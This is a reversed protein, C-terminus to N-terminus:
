DRVEIPTGVTLGLAVAADGQNVAIEALGNSNEYWMPEGPTVDAFTRARRLEHTTIALRTKEGISAARLGLVANGFHDIYIVEALDTPWDTHIRSSPDARDGPPNGGLAIQAAVPAFLDRGHFSPSLTRPEWTIDWWEVQDARRAVENFIGNDPGVFWFGGARVIAPRRSEEGVGPDVVGVFVTNDPFESVYGPLLYAAARANFPPLDHCLDIVPVGPAKRALVTRVQGAYPAGVGFDTYLAIMPLPM